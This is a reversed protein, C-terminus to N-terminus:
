LLGPRPCLARRVRERGVAESGEHPEGGLHHLTREAGAGLERALWGVFAVVANKGVGM